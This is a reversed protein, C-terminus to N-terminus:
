LQYIEKKGLDHLSSAVEPYDKGITFGKLRLAEKMCSLAKDYNQLRRYCNGLMHMCIALDSTDEVSSQPKVKSKSNKKM